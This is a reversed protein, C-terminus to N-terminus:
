CMLRSDCCFTIWLKALTMSRVKEAYVRRVKRLHHDYGGNALFDAIAYQPLTATAITNLFKLHEVQKQFRGPATWGVRYGPALTKSFSDCLMVLGKRDFAKAPLPRAPGFGLDGYIDDEILPIERKALMEVLLTSKLTAPHARLMNYALM